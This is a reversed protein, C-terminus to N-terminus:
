PGDPLALSSTAKCAECTVRSPPSEGCGPLAPNRRYITVDTFILQGCPCAAWWGFLWM